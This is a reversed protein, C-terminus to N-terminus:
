RKRRKKRRKKTAAAPKAAAKVTAALEVTLRSLLADVDIDDPVRSLHEPDDLPLGRLTVALDGAHTAVVLTRSFPEGGEWAEQLAKTDALVSPLALALAEALTLDRATLPKEQMNEEVAMLWPYAQEDAVEWRHGAIEELLNEGLDERPEFNISFHPPISPLEGLVIADAGDGFADFEERGPFLLLGFNEGMQGIISIVADTVGLKEITVSLLCEDSPVKEWPAARYLGAAAEFFAAVAEPELGSSLYSREDPVRLFETMTAIVVDLEPTPACIVDIQKQGSELADALARSAVRVRAPVHPRGSMPRTTAERLSHCALGLVEGPRGMAEGVVVGDADLWVLAEPQFPEGEDTILAPLAVLGGVWEVSKSKKKKAAM